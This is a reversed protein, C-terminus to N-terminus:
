LTRRLRIDTVTVGLIQETETGGDATWGESEYLTRARVNDPLVWLVAEAFGLQTLSSTTRRLLNRGIGCGWWDPDLNMAYLEGAGTPDGSTREAGFAAFGVVSGAQTAVLLPPLNPRGLRDAWMSVREDADLGDLYPDPMIGRYAAQWARVHLRGMAEADAPLADRIEV